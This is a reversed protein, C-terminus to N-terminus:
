RVVIAGSREVTRVPDDGFERNAQGEVMVREGTEPSVAMWPGAERPLDAVRQPVGVRNVEILDSDIATAYLCVGLLSYCAVTASPYDGAWKIATGASKKLRPRLGRWDVSCWEDLMLHSAFGTMVATAMLLRIGPEPSKYALYTLLGSIMMAPLSHFMGRHVTTKRLLWGGGYRVLLYTLIGLGVIADFSRAVEAFRRVLVFPVAAGLLATLEQIPRGRDSDLDPLAGGVGVLTFAVGAQVGDIPTAVWMGAALAAGCTGSVAVHERFM